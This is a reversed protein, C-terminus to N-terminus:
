PCHCHGQAPRAWGGVWRNSGRSGWVYQWTDMTVWTNVGAGRNCGLFWVDGSWEYYSVASDGPNSIWGPWPGSTSTLACPGIGDHYWEARLILHGGPRSWQKACSQTWVSGFDYELYSAVGIQHYSHDQYSWSWTCQGNVNQEMWGSRSALSGHASASSAQALVLALALGLAVWHRREGRRSVHGM